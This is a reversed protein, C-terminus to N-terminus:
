ILLQVTLDNILWDLVGPCNVSGHNINNNVGLARNGADM